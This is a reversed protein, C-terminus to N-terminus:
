LRCKASQSEPAYSLQSLTRNADTLDHTRDGGPGGSFCRLKKSTLTNKLSTQRVAFSSAESIINVEHIIDAEGSSTAFMADNRIFHAVDYKRLLHMM